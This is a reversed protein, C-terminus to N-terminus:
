PPVQYVGVPAFQAEVPPKAVDGAGPYGGMPHTLMIETPYARGSTNSEIIDMVDMMLDQKMALHETLPKKYVHHEVSMRDRICM